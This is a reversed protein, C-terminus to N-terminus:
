SMVRLRTKSARCPQRYVSESQCDRAFFNFNPLLSAKDFVFRFSNGKRKMSGKAERRSCSWRTAKKANGNIIWSQCVKTIGNTALVSRGGFVRLIRERSVSAYLFLFVLFLM